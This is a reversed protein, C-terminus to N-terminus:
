PPQVENGDSGPKSLVLDRNVTEIRIAGNRAIYTNHARSRYRTLEPRGDVDRASDSQPPYMRGDNAWGSPDFPISTFENEVANLTDSLLVYAEEASSARPAKLLREAFVALRERKELTV